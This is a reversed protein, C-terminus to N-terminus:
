LYEEPNRTSFSKYPALISVLLGTLIRPCSDLHSTIPVLTRCNSTFSSLPLYILSINQSYCSKSISQIILSSLSLPSWFLKLKQSTVHTYLSAMKKSLFLSQPPLLCNQNLQRQNVLLVDLHLYSVHAQFGLSLSSMM